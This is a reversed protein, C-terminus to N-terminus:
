KRGKVEGAAAMRSREETTWALSGGPRGVGEFIRRVSEAANGADDVADDEDGTCDEGNSDIAFARSRGGM